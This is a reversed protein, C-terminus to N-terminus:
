FRELACVGGARSLLKGAYKRSAGSYSWVGGRPALAFVGGYPDTAIKRGKTAVSGEGYGALTPSTSHRIYRGAEPQKRAHIM